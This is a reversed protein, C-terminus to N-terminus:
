FKADILAEAEPRPTAKRIAERLMPVAQDPEEAVLYSLDLGERIFGTRRMHDLLGLFPAWFGAVSLLLIPKAHQGLQSWTMQEVLEELTGIGGPLAVFADSRDFMLKKRTHMDSVVITEQVDDLMRERSKLFDPIIGTVHGGHDLVARAVTGMLGVNGGGYVLAIGAEALHRGLARAAAEFVPDTGFGSGCYVCVTRM